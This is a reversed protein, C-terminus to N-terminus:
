SKRVVKNKIRERCSARGIQELVQKENKIQMVYEEIYKNLDDILEKMNKILQDQNIFSSESVIALYYPNHALNKNLYNFENDNLETAGKLNMCNLFQNLNHKHAKTKLTEYDSSFLNMQQKLYDCLLTDNKLEHNTECLYNIQERVKMFEHWQHSNM